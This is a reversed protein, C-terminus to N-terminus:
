VKLGYFRAPNYTLIKQKVHADLDKREAIEALHNDRAEAHPLDASAMVHDEGIMEVTKPVMPEDGEV